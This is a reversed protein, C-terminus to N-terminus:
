DKSQTVLVSWGEFAREIIFKGAPERANNPFTHISSKVASDKVGPPLRETVQLTKALSIIIM